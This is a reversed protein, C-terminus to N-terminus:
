TTKEMAKAQTWFNELKARTLADRAQQESEVERFGGWKKFKRERIQGQHLLVCTDDEVGQYAEANAVEGGGDLIAKWKIRRLLLKKYARTSHEGAEVICLSFTPAVIIFGTLDHLQKANIDL